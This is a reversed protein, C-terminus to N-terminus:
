NGAYTVVDAIRCFRVESFHAPYWHDLAEHRRAATHSDYVWRGGWRGACVIVHQWEVRGDVVNGLYVIDGAAWGAPRTRTTGVIYRTHGADRQSLARKQAACNVWAVAPFETGNARWEHGEDFTSRLGGAALCQSVFNACDSDPSSWFEPNVRLAWADAYAAAASRDFTVRVPAQDVGRAVLVSAALVVTLSVV